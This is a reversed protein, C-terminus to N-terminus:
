RLLPVVWLGGLQAPRTHVGLSACLDQILRLKAVSDLM